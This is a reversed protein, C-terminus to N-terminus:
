GDAWRPVIIMSSLLIPNEPPSLNRIYPNQVQNRISTNNRNKDPPEEVPLGKGKKRGM